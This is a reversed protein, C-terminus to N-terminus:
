DKKTIVHFEGQVYPGSILLSSVHPHIRSFANRMLYFYFLVADMLLSGQFYKKHSNCYLLSCLLINEEMSETM